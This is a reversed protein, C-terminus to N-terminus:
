LNNQNRQKIAYWGEHTIQYWIWGHLLIIATNNLKYGSLILPNMSKEFTNTRLHIYYGSQLKFESVVINCM